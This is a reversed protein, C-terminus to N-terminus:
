TVAAISARLSSNDWTGSGRDPRIQQRGLLRCDGQIDELASVDMHVVRVVVIGDLRVLLSQFDIRRVLLGSLPKALSALLLLSQFVYDLLSIIRSGQGPTASPPHSIM